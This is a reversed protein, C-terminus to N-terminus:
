RQRELRVELVTERDERLDIFRTARVFGPAKVRFQVRAAPFYPKFLRGQSDTRCGGWGPPEHSRLVRSTLPLLADCTYSVEAGAVPRGTEDTVVVTVPSPRGLRVDLVSTEKENIVINRVIGLPHRPSLAFVTYTGSAITAAEYSGSADTFIPRRNTQLQPGLLYLRAYSVPEGYADRVSGRLRGGPGLRITGLSWTARQGAEFVTTRFTAYGPAMVEAAWSGEKLDHAFRGNANRVDFTESSKPVLGNWYEIFSVEFSPLPEGTEACVVRGDVATGPAALIFTVGGQGTRARVPAPEALFTGEEPLGVIDELGPVVLRVSIAEETYAVRSDPATTEEEMPARLIGVRYSGDPLDALDFAGSSDTTARALVPDGDREAVAAVVMGPRPRGHKSVVRGRISRLPELRIVVGSSTAGPEVTVALAESRRFAGPATAQVQITGPALGELSFSGDAGVLVAHAGGPVVEVRGSRLPEGDIDLVTGRIAGCRRATLDGLDLPRAPAPVETNVSDVVYGDIAFAVRIARGDTAAFPGIAFRGDDGTRAAVGRGLCPGVVADVRVGAVPQGLDDVVRGSAVVADPLVVDVGAVKRGAVVQVPVPKGWGFSAGFFGTGFGDAEVLIRNEGEVLFRLDYSGDERTLTARDPWGSAYVRASPVPRGDADTVRGSVGGGLSLLAEYRIPETGDIGIEARWTAYRPDDIRIELLGAPAAGLVANGDHDSIAKGVEVLRKSWWLGAIGKEERSAGSVPVGAVPTRDPALVVVTVPAGRVLTIERERAGLADLVANATLYGEKRITVRALGDTAAGRVRFRGDPGSRLETRDDVRVMADGVPRGEGDRIVAAAVLDGIGSSTPLTAEPADAMAHSRTDSAGPANTRAQTRLGMSPFVVLAAAGAIAVALAAKAVPGSALLTKPAAGVHRLGFLPLLAGVWPASGREQDLRERLLRLARRLRTRVTELPIGLREAIEERTLEDLYRHVITSRYPEPLERVADLVRRQVELRAAAEEPSAIHDPPAKRAERHKRRREERRRRLAFNRVVVRLWGQMNGPEPPQELARLLTDQVADDAEHEDFLLSRAIGRVFRVHEPLANPAPTASESM